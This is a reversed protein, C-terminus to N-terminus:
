DWLEPLVIARGAGCHGHTVNQGLMNELPAPALSFFIFLGSWLEQNNDAYM